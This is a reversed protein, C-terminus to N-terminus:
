LSVKRQFSPGALLACALLVYALGTINDTFFSNALTSVGYSCVLVLGLWREASVSNWAQKATALLVLVLSLMGVIGLEVGLWLYDNHPNAFSRRVESDGANKLYNQKYSGTGHGLVPAQKILDKAVKHFFLRLGVSTDIDGKDYSQVDSQVTSMGTRLSSSGLYLLPGMVAAALLAILFGRRGQWLVVLLGLLLLLLVQATRGKVMFFVDFICLAITIAAPWRWQKPLRGAMWYAALGCALFSVFTSHYTHTRFVSYDGVAGQIIPVGSLGSAVSLLLTIMAGLGFGALLYQRVPALTCVAFFLPALLYARMKLLMGLADSISADTWLVGLVFLGYMLLSAQILPQRLAHAIHARIEPSFIAFLVLVGASINQMATSVPIAFGALFAFWLLPQRAINLNM